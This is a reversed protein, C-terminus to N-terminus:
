DEYVRCEDTEPNDKCFAELPDSDAAQVKKDAAAASVEEVIDWSTACEETSGTECTEEAEKIAEAIQQKSPPESALVVLQQRRGSSIRGVRVLGSAKVTPVFTSRRVSLTNASLM